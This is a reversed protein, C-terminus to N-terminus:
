YIEYSLDDLYKFDMTETKRLHLSIEHLLEEYEAGLLDKIKSEQELYDQLNRAFMWNFLVPKEFGLLGEGFYIGSTVGKSEYLELVKKVLDKVDPGSDKKLYLYKLRCYNTEDEKLRLEAPEYSLDLYATMVRSISTEVCDLYPQVVDRGFEEAFGEWARNIRNIDNLEDIPYWIHCYNDKSTWLIFPHPFSTEQCVSILEKRAKIFQDMKDAKVVEMSMLYLQENNKRRQASANMCLSELVMLAIVVPILKKM